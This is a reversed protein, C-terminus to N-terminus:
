LYVVAAICYNSLYGFVRLARRLGQLPLNLVYAVSRETDWRLVWMPQVAWERCTDMSCRDVIVIDGSRLMSM